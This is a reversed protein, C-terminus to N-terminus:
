TYMCRACSSAVPRRATNRRSTRTGIGPNLAGVPASFPHVGAAAPRAVGDRSGLLTRRAAGLDAVAGAVDPRPATSPSRLQSAPLELKFRGHAPLRELLAPACELLGLTRPELLM